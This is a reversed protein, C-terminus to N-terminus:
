YVPILFDRIAWAIPIMVRGLIGTLMLQLDYREAGIDMGLEFAM